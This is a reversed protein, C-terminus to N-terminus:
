GAGLPAAYRIPDAAFSLSIKTGLGENKAIQPTKMLSWYANSVLRAGNPTIIRLGYPTASDSATTVDAYWSLTPDDFVTLDTTVASRITPIKREVVDDICTIDAYQQDGGGSSVDKVQSLNSWATIRRISGIGTGAPFKATDYTIVGELTIDNTAVVKARVVRKDLRGWGSTMELYDGVVVAHGAALTAVAETTATASNTVATMNVSTGYTKAIAFISGTALTIAM